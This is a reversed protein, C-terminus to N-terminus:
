KETILNNIFNLILSKEYLKNSIYRILKALLLGILTGAIILIINETSVSIYNIGATIDVIYSSVELAATFIFCVAFTKRYDFKFKISISFGFFM